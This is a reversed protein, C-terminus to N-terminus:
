WYNLMYYPNRSQDGFLVMGPHEVSYLFSLNQSPFALCWDLLKCEDSDEENASVARSEVSSIKPHAMEILRILSYM